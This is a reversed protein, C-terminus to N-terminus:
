IEKNSNISIFHVASLFKSWFEEYLSFLSMIRMPQYTDFRTYFYRGDNKFVKAIASEANEELLLFAMFFDSKLIKSYFESIFDMYLVSVGETSCFAQAKEKSILGSTSRRVFMGMFCENPNCEIHFIPHVENKCISLKKSPKRSVGVISANKFILEM